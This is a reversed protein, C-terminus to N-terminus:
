AAIAARLREVTASDEVPVFIFNNIYDPSRVNSFAKTTDTMQLIAPDFESGLRLSGRHYFWPAYGLQDFFSFASAIGGANHREECEVICVPKCRAITQRAGALVALEHGEVDIKIVRVRDIELADLSTVPVEVSRLAFGPNAEANLSCRTLVETEDMVPVLLNATGDSDSLATHLVEAGPGLARTLWRALDPHAEVAIVRAFHPLACLSYSGQNAGVDVFAGGREALVPILRIEPEGHEIERALARRALRRPGLLRRAIKKPLAIGSRVLEKM